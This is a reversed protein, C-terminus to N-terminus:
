GLLRGHALYNTGLMVPEVELADLHRALGAWPRRLGRYTTVYPRAKALRYLWAPLMWPSPYKIGALAVRAGPKMAALINRLAAPSQLVDHTYHFLVADFREAFRAEEAAAEILSVNMWGGARVRERAQAMMEASVEVGVLRGSAGVARLLPEFSLGTGCAVDLVAEGPRLALLEIARRRVEMTRQASADYGAARTRYKEAARKPDPGEM